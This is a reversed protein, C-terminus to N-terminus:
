EKCSNDLLEMLHIFTDYDLVVFTQVGSRAGSFKGFLIPISYTLNAEKIIKDLWEKKLAFQKAGGYGVKAEAKFKTPFHLLVGNIDGSLTPENMITGIAGSSPIRKWVSGTLSKELMKVLEREFDSGKRYSKSSM